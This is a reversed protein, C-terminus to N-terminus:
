RPSGASISLRMASTDACPFARAQLPSQEEGNRERCQRSVGRLFVIECGQARADPRECLLQVLRFFGALLRAVGQAVRLARDRLRVAREGRQLGLAALQAPLGGREGLAAPRELAREGRPLRRDAAHKGRAVGAARGVRQANRQRALM